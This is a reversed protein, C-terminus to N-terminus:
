KSYRFFNLYILKFMRWEKLDDVGILDYDLPPPSEASIKEDSDKEIEKVDKEEEKIQEETTM